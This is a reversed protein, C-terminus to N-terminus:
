RDQVGADADAADEVGVHDAVLLQGKRHRELKLLRRRDQILTPTAEKNWMSPM